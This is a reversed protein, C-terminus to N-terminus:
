NTYKLLRAHVLKEHSVTTSSTETYDPEWWKKKSNKREHVTGSTTTETGSAVRSVDGMVLADAGRKMADKVLEDQIKQMSMGDDARASAQGMIEYPRKLEELSYYVDVHATPAYSRGMYDVSVCGALVFAAAAAVSMGMWRM